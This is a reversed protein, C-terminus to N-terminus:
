LAMYFLFDFNRKIEMFQLGVPNGAEAAERFTEVVMNVNLM